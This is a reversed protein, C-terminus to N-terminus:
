FTSLRRVEDVFADTVELSGMSAFEPDSPYLFLDKFLTQSGNSFYATKQQSNYSMTIGAPNYRGYKEWFEFFTYMTSTRLTAFRARGILGRTGPYHLRRYIQWAVGFVSKGGGASGGFLVESVEPDYELLRWADTQTDSLTFDRRPSESATPPETPTESSPATHPISLDSVPHNYNSSLLVACVKM